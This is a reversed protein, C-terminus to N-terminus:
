KAKESDVDVKTTSRAQYLITEAKANEANVNEANVNEANVNEANVCCKFHTEKTATEFTEVNSLTKSTFVNEHTKRGTKM